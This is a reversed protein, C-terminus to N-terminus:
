GAQALYPHLPEPQPPVREAAEQCRICYPSWPVARLRRLPIARECGACRGFTGADLERLATRVGHLLGADLAADRAAAERDKLMRVRDLDDGGECEALGERARTLRQALERERAQLIQRLDEKQRGTM